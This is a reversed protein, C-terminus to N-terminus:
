IDDILKRIEDKTLLKQNQSTYEKIKVKKFDNSLSIATKPGFEFSQPKIIFMSQNEFANEAEHAYMLEEFVKEGSRKGIIKKKINESKKGKKSAYKEIIVEALDNINLAPMKLIFIEGGQALVGAKLILEVARSVSMIFRTMEPDTITLAKGENVQKIFLPVVSGRSGLVNGFRVCSFVTKRNGKYHNASITLREGLLKTTGMVNTPNVAKDTSIFIVKEIEEDLAVDLLNQTGIVNTKIADFPNFECLPVHKLAAGHFVIDVNEMARALREKDRMDGIFSRLSICNLEQELEFLATENNDFVRIAKPKLPILSRVVESGISGAGGTVLITKNKYFEIGEM